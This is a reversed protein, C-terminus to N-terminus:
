ELTYFGAILCVLILSLSLDLILTHVKVWQIDPLLTSSITHPPAAATLEVLAEMAVSHLEGDSHLWYFCKM